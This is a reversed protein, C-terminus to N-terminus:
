RIMQEDWQLFPPLPLLCERFHNHEKYNIIILYLYYYFYATSILGLGYDSETAAIELKPVISEPPPSVQHVAEHIQQVSGAGLGPRGRRDPVSCWNNNM